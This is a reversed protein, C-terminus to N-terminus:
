LLKETPPETDTLACPMVVSKTQASDTTARSTTVHSLDATSLSLSLSLTPPAPCTNLPLYPNTTRIVSRAEGRVEAEEGGRVEAEEGGRRRTEQEGYGELRTTVHERSASDASARSSNESTM